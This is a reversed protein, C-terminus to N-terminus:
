AGKCPIFKVTWTGTVNFTCVDGKSILIEATIDELQNDYLSRGYSYQIGGINIVINENTSRQGTINVYLWGNSPATYSAGTSVSVANVRNPIFWGVVEVKDSYKVADNYDVARFTTKPQFKSIVGANMDITGVQFYGGTGVINNVEDYLLGTSTAMTGNARIFTPINNGTLNREFTIVNSVTYETNKLTGDANRGNPVLGKVGPLAFMTSGIYGFGNFVQDISSIAGNSVTIIAIPMTLTQSPTSTNSTYRNIVSNTTDFWWHEATGALSDTSGSVCNVLDQYYIASGNSHAAILYKGTGTITSSLNYTTQLHTGNPVYVKSGAKLTLTGNNFELKIDQSIETICNTIQTENLTSELLAQAEEAYSKAETNYDKASKEGGLAQVEQPTGEAYRRSVEAYHKSSYNPM